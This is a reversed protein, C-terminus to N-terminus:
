EGWECVGCVVCVCVVCVCARARVCVCVCVVMVVAAAERVGCARTCCELTLGNDVKRRKQPVKDIASGVQGMQLFSAPTTASVLGMLIASTM